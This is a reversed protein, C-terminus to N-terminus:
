FTGRGARLTSDGVERAATAEKALWARYADPSEAIVTLGMKAHQNGCFQACSGSYVGASTAEIWTSNNLGPILDMKGALRPIWFSHIVDATRLQVQIPEGVPIHIENATTFSPNAGELYTVEWWWQHGVVAIAGAVPHAPASVANITRVTFLFTFTLVIAPVLVALGTLWRNETAERQVDLPTLGRGEAGGDVRHVRRRLAAVLVAVAIIAIVVCSTIILFWGLTTEEAGNVGDRALVSTAGQQMWLTMTVTM